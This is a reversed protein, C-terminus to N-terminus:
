RLTEVRPFKLILDRFMIWRGSIDIIRDDRIKADLRM